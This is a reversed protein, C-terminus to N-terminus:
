SRHVHSKYRQICCPNFNILMHLLTTVGGDSISSHAWSILWTKHNQHLHTFKHSQIEQVREEISMSSTGNSVAPISTELFMNLCPSMGMVNPTTLGQLLSHKTTTSTTIIKHSWIEQVRCSISTSSTGNSVAFIPM